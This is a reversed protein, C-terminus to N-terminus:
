YCNSVCAGTGSGQDNHYYWALDLLNDLKYRQKLYQIFIRLVFLSM